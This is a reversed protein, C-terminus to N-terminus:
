KQSEEDGEGISLDITWKSRGNRNQWKLMSYSTRSVVVLVNIYIYIDTHDFIYIYMCVCKDEIKKPSSIMQQM